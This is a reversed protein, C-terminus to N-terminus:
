IAIAGFLVLFPFDCIKNRTKFLSTVCNFIVKTKITVSLATETTYHNDRGGILRFTAPEPGVPFM